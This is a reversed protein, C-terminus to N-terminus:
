TEKIYVSALFLPPLSQMKNCNIRYHLAFQLCDFCRHKVITSYDSNVSYYRQSPDLIILVSHWVKQPRTQMITESVEAAYEKGDVTHESGVTNNAGWHFHFQVTTYVGNLGGGSVNYARAPFAMELAHGNNTARFTKNLTKNYNVLTFTGLEKDLVTQATEIDIPSQRKGTRCDEKWNKPGSIM